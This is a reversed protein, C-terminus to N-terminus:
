DQWACAPSHRLSCKLLRGYLDSAELLQDHTGQNMVQGDELVLIHDAQRVTSLRHAIVLITM